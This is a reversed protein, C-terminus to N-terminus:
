RDPAAHRAVDPRPAVRHRERPAPRRAPMWRSLDDDGPTRRHHIVTMGFGTARRAVARGIEGYGVIGLTAGYVDHGLLLDLDDQVWRGARLYRESECIRRRAALILGFTLDATTEFLTGARTRSRSAAVTPRPSTSRTTAPARWRSWGSTRARTSSRSTSGTATSACCPRRGTRAARDLEAQDPHALTPGSASTPWAGLDPRGSRRADGAALDGRPAAPRDDSAGGHDRCARRRAVARRARPRVAVAAAPHPPVAAPDPRQRM